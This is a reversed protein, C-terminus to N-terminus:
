FGQTGIQTFCTTSAFPKQGNKYAIYSSYIDVKVTYKGTSSNFSPRFVMYDGERITASFYANITIATGTLKLVFQAIKAKPAAWTLFLGVGVSLTTRATAETKSVTHCYPSLSFSTYAKLVTMDSYNRATFKGFYISM